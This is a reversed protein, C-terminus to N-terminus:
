IRPKTYIEVYKLGRSNVDPTDAADKRFQKASLGDEFSPLLDSENHQM